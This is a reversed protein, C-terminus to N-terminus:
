KAGQELKRFVEQWRVKAEPQCNFPVYGLNRYIKIAPLRWDDTLLYIRRAGRALLARTVASVVLQGLGKGRHAPDAAVWGMEHADPFTATPKYWGMATAALRSSAAHEAFAIGAAGANKLVAHLNDRNWAAFGASRMLDIYADEDGDRFSRLRYGAPAEPAPCPAPRDEPWIM